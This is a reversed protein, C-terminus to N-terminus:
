NFDLERENQSLAYLGFRIQSQLDLGLDKVRQM